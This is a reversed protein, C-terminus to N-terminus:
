KAATPFCANLIKEVQAPLKAFEEKDIAAGSVFTKTFTTKDFGAEQVCSKSPTSAFYEGLSEDMFSGDEKLGAKAQLMRLLVKGGSCKRALDAALQTALHKGQQTEPKADNAAASALASGKAVAASSTSAPKSADPKPESATLTKGAPKDKAGVVQEPPIERSMGFQPWLNFAYLVVALALVLLLAIVYRLRIRLEFAKGQVFTAASDTAESQEQGAGGAAAPLAARQKRLKKFEDLLDAHATNLHKLESKIEDLRERQDQGMSSPSSSSRQVESMLKSQQDALGKVMNKVDSLGREAGSKEEILVGLTGQGAQLAALQAPIGEALASARDIKPELRAMHQAVQAARAESNSEATDHLDRTHESLVRLLEKATNTGQTNLHGVQHEALAQQNKFQHEALAQLHQKLDELAKESLQAQHQKLDQAFQTGIFKLRNATSAHITTFDIKLRQALDQLIAQSLESEDDPIPPISTSM